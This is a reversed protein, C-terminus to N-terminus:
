SAYTVHPIRQYGPLAAIAAKDRKGVEWNPLELKRLNILYKSALLDRIEGAGFAAGALQLVRVSRMGPWEALLRASKATLSNYRLNVEELGLLKSQVLSRVGSDGIVNGQVNLTRLREVKPTLLLAAFEKAGLATCLLELEELERIHSNSALAAAVADGLYNSRIHLKRLYTLRPSGVLEAAAAPAIDWRGLKGISLERLSDLAPSDSLIRTGNSDLHPLSLSPLGFALSAFLRPELGKTREIRLDEVPTLHRIMEGDQLWQKATPVFLCMFGRRFSGVLRHTWEPFPAWRDCHAIRLERQRTAAQVQEDSLLWRDPDALRDPYPREHAPHQDTPHLEREIALHKWQPHVHELQCQLRIFEAREEDGNEQLWDAFVLRPTDDELNAKIASLFPEWGPPYPFPDNVSSTQSRRPM